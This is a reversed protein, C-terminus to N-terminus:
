YCGWFALYVALEAFSSALPAMASVALLNGQEQGDGLHTLHSQAWSSQARGAGM